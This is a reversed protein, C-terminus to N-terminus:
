KVVVVTLVTDHGANCLEGNDGGFKVDNGNSVCLIARARNMEAVRADPLGARLAALLERRDHLPERRPLGDDRM